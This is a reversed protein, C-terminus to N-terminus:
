SRKAKRIPQAVELHRVSAPGVARCVIEAGNGTLVVYAVGVLNSSTNM